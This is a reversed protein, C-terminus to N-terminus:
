KGRALEERLCADMLGLHTGIDDVGPRWASEPTRHRSWRQWKEGNFDQDALASIPVGDIRQLPPSFYFMDLQASPYTLPIVFGVNVTTHNYGPPVKWNQIKLLLNGQWDNIEWEIGNSRLIEGDDSTLPPRVPEERGDTRKKPISHFKEIGDQELDVTEDPGILKRGGGALKLYLDYEDIHTHGISLLVERGTVLRHDFTVSQGDIKNYFSVGSHPPKEHHHTSETPSHNPKEAM